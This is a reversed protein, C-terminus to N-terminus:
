IGYLVGPDEMQVPNPIPIDVTFTNEGVRGRREITGSRNRNVAEVQWVFAGRGLVNINDLTWGTSTVTVRNIQRRRNATQEYLTFIYANAGQVPSWRFVINRQTRLEEIGIRHGNLPMRNVPAPLPPPPSPPPRPPPPLPPAEPEPEILPTEPEPSHEREPLAIAQGDKAANQEIPYHREVGEADLAFVAKPSVERSEGEEILVATGENVQLAIGDEGASATFATGAGAKIVRGMLNLQFGGKMGTTVGTNSYVLSGEILELQLAGSDDPALQIRILANENLDIQQGEINLTASSLEATRILDGLYVPSDARPRDWLVRDAARRQVINNKITIAGVPQMNQRNITQFLDLRFLNISYAMISLCLVVILFDMFRFRSNSKREKRKM